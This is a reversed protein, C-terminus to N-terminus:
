GKEIDLMGLRSWFVRDVGSQLWPNLFLIAEFKNLYYGM